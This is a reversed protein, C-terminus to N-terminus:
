WTVIQASLCNLKPITSSVYSCHFMTHSVFPPLSSPPPFGCTFQHTPFTPVCLSLDFNIYPLPPLFAQAHVVLRENASHSCICFLAHVRTYLREVVSSNTQFATWPCFFQEKSASPRWLRTHFYECCHSCCCIFLMLHFPAIIRMLELIFTAPSLHLSFM